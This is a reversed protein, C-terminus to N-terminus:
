YNQHNHIKFQFIKSIRNDEERLLYPITILLKKTLIKYFIMITKFNM